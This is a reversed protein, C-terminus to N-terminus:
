GKQIVSASVVRPLEIRHGPHEQPGCDSGRVVNPGYVHCWLRNHTLCLFVMGNTALHLNLVSKLRGSHPQVQRLISFRPEEHVMVGRHLSEGILDLLVVGEDLIHRQEHLVSLSPLKLLKSVGRLLNIRVQHRM